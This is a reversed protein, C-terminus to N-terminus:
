LLAIKWGNNDIKGQNKILSPLINKCYTLIYKISVYTFGKCMKEDFTSHQCAKSFADLVHARCVKLWM